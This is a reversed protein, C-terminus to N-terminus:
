PMGREMRLQLEGDVARTAHALSVLHRNRSQDSATRDPLVVGRMVRYETGPRGHEAVLAVVVAAGAAPMWRPAPASPQGTENRYDIIDIKGPHVDGDIAQQVVFEHIVVEYSVSERSGDSACVDSTRVETSEVGTFHGAVVVRAQALTQLQTWGTDTDQADLSTAGTDQAGVSSILMLVAMPAVSVTFMKRKTM